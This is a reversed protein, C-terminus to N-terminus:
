VDNQAGAGRWLPCNFRTTEGPRPRFKCGKDTCTNCDPKNAVDDFFAKYREAERKATDRERELQDIRKDQAECVQGWRKISALAARYKGKFDDAANRLAWNEILLENRIETDTKCRAVRSKM